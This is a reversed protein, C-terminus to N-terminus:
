TGNRKLCRWIGVAFAPSLRALIVFLKAALSKTEKVYVTWYKRINNRILKDYQKEYQEMKMLIHVCDYVMYYQAYHILDPYNEQCFQIKIESALIRDLEQPSFKRHTISDPNSRYYYFVTNTMVSKKAKHFLRYTVYEDEYLKGVPFSIGEFLHKKFLKNCVSNSIRKSFLLEQMGDHRDLSKEKEVSRATLLKGEDTVHKIGGVAIDADTQLILEYLEEFFNADVSDDSDVFGIYKASAVRIGANRADSLGGNKKHIVQIRTDEGAYEQCIQGSKDQSGDDVLIIQIEELTQRCLSNLCERLYKETNYVPVIVSIKPM